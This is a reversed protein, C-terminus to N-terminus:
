KELWIKHVLVKQYVGANGGADINVRYYMNVPSQIEASLLINNYTGPINKYTCSSAAVGRVSKDDVFGANFGNFKNIDNNGSQYYTFEIFVKSFRKADIKNNTGFAPMQSYSPSLLSLANQEKTATGNGYSNSIYCVSFGGTVDVCEDGDKYLYLVKPGDPWVDQWVGDTQKKASTCETFAKATADYRQLMQADKFAQTETDWIKVSMPM